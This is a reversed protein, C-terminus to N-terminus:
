SVGGVKVFDWTCVEACVCGHIPYTPRQHCLSSCPVCTGKDQVPGHDTQGTYLTACLEGWSAVNAMSEKPVSGAHWEYTLVNTYRYM